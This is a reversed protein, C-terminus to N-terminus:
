LLKNKTGYAVVANLVADMAAALEPTNAVEKWLDFKFSVSSDEGRGPMLVVKGDAVASRHLDVFVPASDPNAKVLLQTLFWKDFSVSTTAPVVVPKTANIDAM